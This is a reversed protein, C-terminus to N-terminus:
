GRIAHLAASPQSPLRIWEGYATLLPLVRRNERATADVTIRYKLPRPLVLIRREAGLRWNQEAYLRLWGSTNMSVARLAAIEAMHLVHDARVQERRQSVTSPSTSFM